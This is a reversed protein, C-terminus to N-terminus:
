RKFTNAECPPEMYAKILEKSEESQDNHANLYKIEEFNNSDYSSYFLKVRKM